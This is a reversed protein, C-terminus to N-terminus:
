KMKNRKKMIETIEEIKFPRYEGFLRYASDVGVDMSLGNYQGDVDLSDHTHGYMHISGHHSKNWVRMAYHFLVYTNSNHKLEYYDKIWEFQNRCEVNALVSKEHNGCILYKKGNLQKLIHLTKSKSGFSFDGLHYVDDNPGVINNWEEILKDDMEDVSNFPRNCFKIINKHNFHHDSTIFTKKM